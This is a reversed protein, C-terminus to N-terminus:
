TSLDNILQVFCSLGKGVKISTLDNIFVRVEDCTERGIDTLVYLQELRLVLVREVELQDVVNGLEAHFLLLRTSTSVRLAEEM